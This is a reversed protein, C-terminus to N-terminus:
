KKIKFGIEQREEIPKFESEHCWITKPEGGIFYSLEYRADEHRLCFATILADFGGMMVYVVTGCPIISIKRM